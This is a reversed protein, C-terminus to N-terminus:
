FKLYNLWILFLEWTTSVDRLCYEAIENIRGQAFYDSVNSGDIGESKPSKIGFSQAYFDFNLRKTPGSPSQMYYTLEDLVDYHNQYNFKTGAMLNRTPKVRLLASRLMLYPADFNRGNFTVLISNEYKAFSKWFRKLVEKENGIQCEDGTSLTISKIESDKSENDVALAVKKETSFENYVGSMLQIGICVVQSTYPMLAMENLRKEKEETTNTRRLLYEQQSESLREFPLPVTEIDFILFKQSNEMIKRLQYIEYM